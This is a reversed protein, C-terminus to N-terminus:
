PVFAGIGRPSFRAEIRLAKLTLETIGGTGSIKTYGFGFTAEKADGVLKRLKQANSNREYCVWQILDEDGIVGAADPSYEAKFYNEFYTWRIINPFYTITPEYIPNTGYVLSGPFAGLCRYRNPTGIANGRVTSARISSDVTSSTMMAATYEELSSSGLFNMDSTVRLEVDERGEFDTGAFLQGLRLEVAPGTKTTDHYQGTAAAPDIGMKLGAALAGVDLTDMKSVNRVYWTKGDVTINGDSGPLVDADALTSFDASYLSIWAPDFATGCTVDGGGGGGGQVAGGIRVTPRTM